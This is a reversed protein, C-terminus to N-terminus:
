DNYCKIVVLCDATNAKMRLTAGSDMRWVAFETAKMRGIVVMVGGSEPGWQVYNTADLNKMYVYGETTLESLDIVVEAAQTVNIVKAIFKKPGSQTILDTEQKITDNVLGNSYLGSLTFQLENAM